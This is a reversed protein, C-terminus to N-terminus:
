SHIRFMLIKMLKTLIKLNLFLKIMVALFKDFTMKSLFLYVLVV